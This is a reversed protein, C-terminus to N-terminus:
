YSPHTLGQFAARGYELVGVPHVDHPIPILGLRPHYPVEGLFFQIRPSFRRIAAIAGDGVITM